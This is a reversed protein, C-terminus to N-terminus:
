IREDRDGLTLAALTRGSGSMQLGLLPSRATLRTSGAERRRRTDCGLLQRATIADNLDGGIAAVPAALDRVRAREDTRRRHIDCEAPTEVDDVVEPTRTKDSDSM